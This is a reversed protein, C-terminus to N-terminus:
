IYSYEVLKGEEESYIYTRSNLCMDNTCIFLGLGADGSLGELRSLCHDCYYGDDPQSSAWERVEESTLPM